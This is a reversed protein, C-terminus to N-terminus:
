LRTLRWGMTPGSGDAGAVLPTTATGDVGVATLTGLHQGKAVTRGAPQVLHVRLHVTSGNDVLGQVARATVVPVPQGRWPATVHGVVTGAALVTRTSVTSPLADALAEGAALAPEVLGTATAPIGLVVGYVLQKAGGVTRTAAFAWCGGAATDSGTKIGVIGDHGVDYDYNQVTGAVPFTASPMAVIGAFVPLAMAKRGVTLQDAPTSVTTPDLGSPDTYHTHDMGLKKATANMKAVFATVSGADWQALIDAVNDASAVLLAELAQQETLAEGTAVALVSDSAAAEAQYAAVDASTIAISPGTQGTPIPHDQLVVYATMMKALSAIPAPTASGSTRVAGNGVAVAAAGTAPWPLDASGPVSVTGPGSPEAAQGPVARVVQVVVFVIALVILVVIAWGARRV